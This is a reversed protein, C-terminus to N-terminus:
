STSRRYRKSARAGAFSLLACAVLSATTPEPVATAIVFPTSPVNPGFDTTVGDHGISVTNPQVGVFQTYDLTPDLLPQTWFDLTGGQSGPDGLAFVSSPFPVYLETSTAWLSNSPDLYVYSGADTSSGSATFAPVQPPSAELWNWSQINSPSLSGITGDTTITCTLTFGDKAFTIPTIAYMIPSASVANSRALVVLVFVVASKRM